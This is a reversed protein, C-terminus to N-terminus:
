LGRWRKGVSGFDQFVSERLSRSSHSPAKSASTLVLEDAASRGRPLLEGDREFRENTQRGFREANGFQAVAGALPVEARLVEGSSSKRGSREGERAVIATDCTRLISEAETKLMLPNL